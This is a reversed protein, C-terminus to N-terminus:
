RVRVALSLANDEGLTQLGLEASSQVNTAVLRYLGAKRFVITRSTGAFMRPNGLVLKPGATQAVDFAMPCNIRITVKTGRTVRITTSPGLETAAMWVHCGRVYHVIALRVTPSAVAPSAGLLAVAASVILFRRM